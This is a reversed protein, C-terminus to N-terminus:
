GPSQAVTSPLSSPPPPSHVCARPTLSRLRASALRTRAFAPSPLLQAGDCSWCVEAIALDLDSKELARFTRTESSAAAAAPPSSTTTAPEAATKSVAEARSAAGGEAEIVDLYRVGDYVYATAHEREFAAISTSLQSV